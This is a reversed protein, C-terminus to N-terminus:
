CRKLLSVFCIPAGSDRLVRRLSRTVFYLSYDKNQITYPKENTMLEDIDNNDMRKVYIM